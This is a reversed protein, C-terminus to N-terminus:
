VPPPPPAANQYTATGLPKMFEYPLDVGYGEQKLMQSAVCCNCWFSVCCDEMAFGMCQKGLVPNPRMLPGLGWKTMEGIGHKARIASRVRMLVACGVLGYLLYAIAATIGFSITYLVAVLGLFVWFIASVKKCTSQKLKTPVKGELFAESFQGLVTPFCCSVALCHTKGNGFKKCDLLPYKWGNGTSPPAGPPGASSLDTPLPPPRTPPEPADGQPRTWQTAGTSNNYFYKRNTNPDDVEQWGEPLELEVMDTM